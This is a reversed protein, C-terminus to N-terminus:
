VVEGMGVRYEITVSYKEGLVKTLVPEVGSQSVSDISLTCPRGKLSGHVTTGPTLPFSMPSVLRAEYREQISTSGVSSQSGAVAKVPKLKFTVPVSSTPAVLNGREDVVPTGSRVEFVFTALQFVSPQNFPSIM